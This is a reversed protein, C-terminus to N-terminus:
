MLQTKTPEPAIRNRRAWEDLQQLAVDMAARAQAPDKHSCVLTIDDAYAVIRAATVYEGVDASYLAFALPGWVSGQPVGSELSRWASTRGGSMRVRQRRGDLYSRMLALASGRIGCQREFKELLIGHDITDFAASCDASAVYVTEGQDRASAVMDVLQMVATECSRGPVFGHQYNPMLGAHRVHAKLQKALVREVLRSISPLLAVPRYKTPDDRSGKKKWLPAVEADKWQAPWELEIVSNAVRAVHESLPQRLRVLVKMPIDDTGVSSTAKVKALERLVEDGTVWRFCQFEPLGSPARIEPYPEALLPARIREVKRVFADNVADPSCRPEVRAKSKRGM